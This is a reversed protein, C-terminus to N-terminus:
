KRRGNKPKAAKNEPSAGADKDEAVAGADKTRIAEVYGEAELGPVLDDPIDCDSGAVASLSNLGDTSYPFSRKIRCKM